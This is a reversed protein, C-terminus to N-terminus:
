PVPLAFCLPRFVSARLGTFFSIFLVFLLANDKLSKGYHRSVETSYNCWFM